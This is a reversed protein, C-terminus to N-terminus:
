VAGTAQWVNSSVKLLTIWGHQTTTVLNGSATFITVGAGQALTIMGTGQPICTITTGVAFAVGGVGSNPPVTWTRGTSGTLVQATNADSLAFTKDLTEVVVKVGFDDLGIKKTTGGDDIAIQDTEMAVNAIQITSSLDDIDLTFTRDSALTGGGSIGEGATLNTAALALDAGEVGDVTDADLGSGTGDATNIITVLQAATLDTPDGTGAADARGKITTQAMNALQTNDVADTGIRASPITGTTLKSADVNPLGSVMDYTDDTANYAVAYVKDALIDNAALNTGAMKITKAGLSDVNLTASGTNARDARFLTLPMDALAAHTANTTLTYANSTGATTLTGDSDSYWKAVAAMVERITDNVGSPAMGEPAGDPSASNNSSATTSWQSVDSM